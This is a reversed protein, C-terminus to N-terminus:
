CLFMSLKFGNVKGEVSGFANDSQIQERGEARALISLWTPSELEVRLYSYDVVGVVSLGCLSSPFRVLMM